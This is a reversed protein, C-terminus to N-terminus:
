KRIGNLSGEREQAKFVHEQIRDREEPQSGTERTRGRHGPTM